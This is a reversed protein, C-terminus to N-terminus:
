GPLASQERAQAVGLRAALTGSGNSARFGQHPVFIDAGPAGPRHLAPANQAAAICSKCRRDDCRGTRRMM